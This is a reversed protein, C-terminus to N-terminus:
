LQKGPSAKLRDILVTLADPPVEAKEIYYFFQPARYVLLLEDDNRWAYVDTWSLRGGLVEDDIVLQTEGIHYTSNKGSLRMEDMRAAVRHRLGVHNWRKPFWAILASILLSIIVWLGFRESDITRGELAWSLFMLCLFLMIFM